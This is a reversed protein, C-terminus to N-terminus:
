TSFMTFSGYNGSSGATLKVSDGASVVASPDSPTGDNISFATPQGGSSGDYWKSESVKYYIATTGATDGTKWYIIEDTTSTPQLVYQVQGFAGGEVGFTSPYTPTSSAVIGSMTFIFDAGQGGIGTIITGNVVPTASYSFSVPDATGDDGTHTTGPIIQVIGISIIDRSCAEPTRGIGYYYKTGTQKSADYNVTFDPYYGNSPPGTLTYSTPPNFTPRQLQLQLQTPTRLHISKITSIRLSYKVRQQHITIVTNPAENGWDIWIGTSREVQIGNATYTNRARPSLVGM